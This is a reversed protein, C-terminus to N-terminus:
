LKHRTSKFVHKANCHHRWKKDDVIASCGPEMCKYKYSRKYKTDSMVCNDFLRCTCVVSKLVRCQSGTNPLISQLLIKLVLVLLWGFFYKFYLYLYM